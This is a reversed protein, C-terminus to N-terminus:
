KWSTRWARSSSAVVSLSSFPMLIAALLPSILGAIALGAGLLNYALSIGLNRHITRLTSSSGELLEVLANLDPTTLYVDATSLAAEAGGHVGVGVSAAALAAADNVGDGVMVVPGERLSEEVRALKDEPLLGGAQEAVPVGLQAAVGAVIRPHDGSLIGPRWGLARLRDLAQRAEPRIPDGFAAAAVVEGDVAVLLPSHGATLSREVFPQVWSPEGTARGRVWRPAGVHLTRGQVRGVLGAGDRRADECPAPELEAFADRFGTALPHASHAEVGLVWARVLDPGEWALLRTHGETLTGTKDLWIRGPRSLREVVEGGKVLLGRGAARGLAVGIALPTALGLACPCTVILLAVAHDIAQSPDLASWLALTAFALLLVAAVFWGAIRDALHVVPAKRQSSAEVERVLHGVRTDEGTATARVRLTAARNLTGAHVADGAKVEVPRSEGTLLSVDLHSAGHEVLGDVPISEEARVEVLAGATLEVLPVERVTEGEVLRASSPQLARLLEAADVARRQQRRQLWRGVLLLFVLVAVTDFYVEGAGRITNFVGWGLGTLLGLSIPLDMHLSRARLAAWAGRLFVRGPGLVAPVTLVLCVWRFLQRYGSSMGVLDGGYLAFAMLMVNGALFGAVALRVLFARDERRRVALMDSQVPHPAYGLADLQRALTALDVHDPEWVVRVQSRRLDLRASRVGPVLQPLKEVLWVCAGCHVGELYLDVLHAGDPLARVHRDAFAESDLEAYSRGTTRAPQREAGLRDALGYYGTLGQQALVAHVTRCGDCCFQVEAEPERLAAPV